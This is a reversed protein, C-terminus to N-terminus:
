GEDGLGIAAKASRVMKKAGNVADLAFAAAGSHHRRVYARRSDSFQGDYPLEGLSAGDDGASPVDTPADLIVVQVNRLHHIEWQAERARKCWDIEEFQLLFGEEFGGVGEVAARNLMLCTAPLWQVTSVAANPSAARPGPAAVGSTDNHIAPSHTAPSITLGASDILQPGVAAVRENNDLHLLMDPVLRGPIETFPDILLVREARAAAIGLNCAHAFGADPAVSIVEVCPFMAEIEAQAASGGVLDVVIVESTAGPSSSLVNSERLQQLCELTRQQASLSVVVISLTVPAQPTANAV